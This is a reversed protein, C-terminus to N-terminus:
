DKEANIGGFIVNKKLLSYAANIEAVKSTYVQKDETMARDPHWTKVLLKYQSEIEPATVTVELQLVKLANLEEPNFVSNGTARVYRPDTSGTLLLYGSFANDLKEIGRELNIVRSKLWLIVAALNGSPTRQSSCRMEVEKGNSQRFWLIATGTTRDLLVDSEFVDIRALLRVAENRATPISKTIVTYNTKM